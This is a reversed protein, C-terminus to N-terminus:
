DASDPSEPAKAETAAKLLVSKLNAELLVMKPIRYGKTGFLNVKLHDNNIWRLVTSPRSRCVEAVEEVTMLEPWTSHDTLDLVLGEKPVEPVSSDAPKDTVRSLRVM